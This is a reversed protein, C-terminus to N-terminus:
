QSPAVWFGVILLYSATAGLSVALSPLYLTGYAAGLRGVAISFGVGGRAPAARVRRWRGLCRRSQGTSVGIERAVESLRKGHEHGLACCRL